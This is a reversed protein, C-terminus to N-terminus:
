SQANFIQLRKTESEIIERAAEKMEYLLAYQNQLAAITTSHTCHNELEQCFQQIYTLGVYGFLTKCKHVAAGLEAVQQQQWATEVAQWYPPLDNLFEGFVAEAYTFDGDFLENLFPSNLKENFIFPKPNPSVM